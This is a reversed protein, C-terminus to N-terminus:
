LTHSDAQASLSIMMCLRLISVVLVGHVASEGPGHFSVIFRLM